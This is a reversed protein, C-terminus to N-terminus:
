ILDETNTFYTTIVYSSYYKFVPYILPVVLFFLYYLIVAAFSFHKFFKILYIFTDM